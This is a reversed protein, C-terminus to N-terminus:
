FNVSFTNTYVTALCSFVSICSNLPMIDYFFYFILLSYFYELVLFFVFIFILQKRPNYVSRLVNKLVTQTKIFEILHYCFFFYHISLALIAFGMYGVAYLVEMNFILKFYKQIKKWLNSWGGIRLINSIKEIELEHMQRTKQDYVDKYYNM